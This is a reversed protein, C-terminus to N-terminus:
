HVTKEGHGGVEGKIKQSEIFRRIMGVADRYFPHAGAKELEAELGPVWDLHDGIFGGVQRQSASRYLLGLFELELVLHDPTSLFEEPVELASQRYLEQMHLAADGMLLGTSRSFVMRCEGDATWPKYTSEVLSIGAGERPGFLRGYEARLAAVPDEGDEEGSFLAPSQSGGGWERFAKELLSRSAETRLEAFLAGEPPALLAAALSCFRAKEDATLM